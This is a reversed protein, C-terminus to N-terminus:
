QLVFDDWELAARKVKIKMQKLHIEKKTKTPKPPAEQQKLSSTWGKVEENIIDVRIRRRCKRIVIYEEESSIGKMEENIIDVHIKRSCEHIKIEEVEGSSGKMEEKKIDINIKRRCNRMVVDYEESNIGGSWKPINANFNSHPTNSTERSTRTIKNM